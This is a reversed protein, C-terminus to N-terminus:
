AKTKLTARLAQSLHTGSSGKLQDVYNPIHLVQRMFAMVGKSGGAILLATAVVGAGSTSERHFTTSIADFRLAWCIALSAAFAIVAKLGMGHLRAYYPSEFVVSLAREVAFALFLLAGMVEGVLAWDLRFFLPNNAPDMDM